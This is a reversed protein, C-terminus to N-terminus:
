AASEMSGSRVTPRRRREVVQLLEDLDFVRDLVEDCGIRRARWRGMAGPSLGVIPVQATRADARLAQVTEVGQEWSDLDLLVLEPEGTITAAVAARGYGSRAVELQLFHELIMQIVHEFDPHDDTVLVVTGGTQM